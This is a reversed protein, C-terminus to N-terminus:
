APRTEAPVGAEAPAPQGFCFCVGYPEQAFFVVHARGGQEDRRIASPEIGARALEDRLAAVDTVAFYCSAEEPDKGNVALGIQADGRRLTATRDTKEVVTFGLVRTYYGIAPGLKKVPLEHIDTDGIPFVGTFGVGDAM